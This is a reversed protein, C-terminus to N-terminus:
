SGNGDMGITRKRSICSTSVFFIGIWTVFPFRKTFSPFENINLILYIQISHGNVGYYYKKKTYLPKSTIGLVELEVLLFYELFSKCLDRIKPKERYDHLIKAFFVVFVESNTKSRDNLLSLKKGVIKSVERIILSHSALMSKHLRLEMIKGSFSMERKGLKMMIPTDHHM